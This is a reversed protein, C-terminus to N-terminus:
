NVMSVGMELRSKPVAFPTSKVTGVRQGASAHSFNPSTAIVVSAVYNIQKLLDDDVLVCCTETTFLNARGGSAPRIELSGCGIEIALARAAEDEGIEGEELEAVCVESTGETELMRADQDSIMHGKALWKKGSSHLITRWLIKGECHKVDITQARM